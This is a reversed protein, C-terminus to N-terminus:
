VLGVCVEKTVVACFFGSRLDDAKLFNEQALAGLGVDAAGIAVGGQNYVVFQLYLQDLDITLTLSMGVGLPPLRAGLRQVHENNRVCICGRQNLFVSRMKQINNRRVKSDFVFGAGDAAGLEGDLIQYTYHHQGGLRLSEDFVMCIASLEMPKGERSMRVKRTGSTKTFLHGDGSIIGVNSASKHWRCPPVEPNAVTRDDGGLPPSVAATKQADGSAEHTAQKAAKQNAKVLHAMAQQAAASQVQAVLPCMQQLMAKLHTAEVDNMLLEQETSTDGTIADQISVKLPEDTAAAHQRQVTGWVNAIFAPVSSDVDNATWDHMISEGAGGRLIPALGPPAILDCPTLM